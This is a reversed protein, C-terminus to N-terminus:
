LIQIGLDAIQADTLPYAKYGYDPQSLRRACYVITPDQEDRKWAYRPLGNEELPHGIQGYRIGERLLDTAEMRPDLSSWKEPCLVSIPENLPADRAEEITKANEKPKALEGQWVGRKHQTSGVYVARNAMDELDLASANKIPRGARPGRPDPRRM